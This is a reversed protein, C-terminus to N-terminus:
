SKAAGFLSLTVCPIQCVVITVTVDYSNRGSKQTGEFTAGPYLCRNGRTRVRIHTVDTLPDPTSLAVQTIPPKQQPECSHPRCTDSVVSHSSRLTLKTAPPIPPDQSHSAPANLSKSFELSPDIRPSPIVLLPVPSPPSEFTTVPPHRMNHLNSSVDRSPQLHSIDQDILRRSNNQSHAVRLLVQERCNPCTAPADLEPFYIITKCSPCSKAQNQQLQSLASDTHPQYNPESPTPMATHPPCGPRGSSIAERGKPWTGISIIYTEGNGM